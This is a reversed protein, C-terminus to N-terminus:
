VVAGDGNFTLIYGYRFVRFGDENTRYIKVPRTAIVVAQDANKQTYGNILFNPYKKYLDDEKILRDKIISAISVKEKAHDEYLLRSYTGALNGITSNNIFESQDYNYDNEGWLMDWPGLQDVDEDFVNIAKTIKRKKGTAEDVIETVEKEEGLSLRIKEEKEEGLAEIMKNRYNNYADTMAALAAALQKNRASMIRHANFFCLLSTAEMLIPMLYTKGLKSGTRVYLAALDKKYASEDYEDPHTEKAEEFKDRQEKHADLIDMAKPTQKVAEVVAAVSTIAGIAMMIQPSYKKVTVVTKNAVRIVSTPIHM